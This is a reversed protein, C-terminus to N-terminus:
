VFRKMSKMIKNLEELIESQSLRTYTEIEIEEPIEEGITRWCCIYNLSGHIPLFHNVEEFMNHILDPQEPCIRTIFRGEKKNEYVLLFYDELGPAEKLNEKLRTMEQKYFSKIDM